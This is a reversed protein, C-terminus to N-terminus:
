PKSLTRNYTEEAAAAAAEARDAAAEARAAAAEARDADATIMAQDEESMTACAGLGASCLVIAALSAPLRGQIRM